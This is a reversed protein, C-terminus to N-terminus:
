FFGISVTGFAGSPAMLATNETDGSTKLTDNEIEIFNNEANLLSVKEDSKSNQRHKNLSVNSIRLGQVDFSIADSDLRQTAVNSQEVSVPAPTVIETTQPKFWAGMIWWAFLFLLLWWFLGGFKSSKKQTQMSAWQNFGSNNDLYKVM